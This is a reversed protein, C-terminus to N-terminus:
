SPLRCGRNSAASLVATRRGAWNGLPNVRALGDRQLRRYESRLQSCNMRTTREAYSMTRDVSSNTAATVAATTALPVAVVGLCGSLLTMSVGFAALTGARRIFPKWTNQM